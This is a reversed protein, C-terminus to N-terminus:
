SKSSLSPTGAELRNLLDTSSESHAETESSPDVVVTLCTYGRENFAEKWVKWGDVNLLEDGKNSCAELTRDDSTQQSSSSIATSALPSSSASANSSSSWGKVSLFVIPLALSRAASPHPPHSTCTSVLRHLIQHRRLATRALKELRMMTTRICSVILFHDFKKKSLRGLNRVAALGNLQAVVCCTSPTFSLPEALLVAPLSSYFLIAVRALRSFSCFSLTPSPMSVFPLPIYLSPLRRHLHFIRSLRWVYLSPPRPLFVSPIFLSWTSRFPELSSFFLYPLTPSPFLRCFSLICM